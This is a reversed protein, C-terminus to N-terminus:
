QLNVTIKDILQILLKCMLQFDAKDKDIKEAPLYDHNAEILEPVFQIRKLTLDHHLIFSLQDKDILQLQSVWKGQNLFAIIEDNILSQKRVQIIGVNELMDVLKVEEGLEFNKLAAPNLIWEKMKQELVIESSLPVAYFTGIQKRLTALILESHNFSTTDIILKKNKKDIWIWTSNFKSFAKPLLELLLQEKIELKETKNLKKSLKIELADIKQNLHEKLVAPPLLKVEKKFRILIQENSEYYLQKVNDSFPATFGFKEKDTPLCAKFIAGTLVSNLQDPELWNLDKLHYIIANKFWIM